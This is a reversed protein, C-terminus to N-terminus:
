CAILCAYSYALVVDIYYDDDNSIWKLEDDYSFANRRTPTTFLRDSIDSLIV